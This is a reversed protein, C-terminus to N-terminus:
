KSSRCTLMYVLANGANELSDGDTFKQGKMTAEILDTLTDIDGVPVKFRMISHTQLPKEMPQRPTEDEDPIDLEDLEISVSSFISALDSEEYPMYSALEDVTGLGELLAALQLADDDGYRSNDILGVEKAKKDDIRGLNVIPIEKIGLRKAAIARHEGGIIQLEGSELERVVIPKFMGLRSISAELKAENDPSVSNTNWPNPRLSDPNVMSVSLPKQKM